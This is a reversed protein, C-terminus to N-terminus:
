LKAIKAFANEVMQDHAKAYIQTTRIDKHGLIAQIEEMSIGAILANSAMSHRAYHTSAKFKFGLRKCIIGLNKNILATASKQEKLARQEDSQNKHTFFGFIYDGSSKDDTNYSDLIEKAKQTLPLSTLDKGKQRRLMIHSGNYNQRKLRLADGIRLGTQNCFIFIDRCMQIKSQPRFTMNEIQKIQDLSIYKRETEEKKIKWKRFPYDNLKMLDAQILAQSVARLFSLNSAITNRKNGRVKRLFLEFKSLFGANLDRIKISGGTHEKLKEVIAEYRRLTSLTIEKREYRDKLWNEAFAILCEKSQDDSLADKVMHVTYNVKERDYQYAIDQIESLITRLLANASAHSSYNKKVRQKDHDWQEPKLKIGTRLYASKRSKIIRINLPCEGAKNMRDIRLLVKTTIMLQLKQAVCQNFM